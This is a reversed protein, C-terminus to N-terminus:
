IKYSNYILGVTRLLIFSKIFSIISHLTITSATYPNSFLVDDKSPHPYITHCIKVLYKYYLPFLNLIM